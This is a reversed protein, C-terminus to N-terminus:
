EGHTVRIIRSDNKDIQILFVGGLCGEPLSGTVTWVNNHLSVRYPKEEYIVSKGYIPTLIAEAVAIATTEDPVFGNKPIVHHESVIDNSDAGSMLSCSIVLLSIMAIQIRAKM